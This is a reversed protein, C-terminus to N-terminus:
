ASELKLTARAAAYKAIGDQTALAPFLALIEARMNAAMSDLMAANPQFSETWAGDAMVVEHADCMFHIYSVRLTDLTQVKRGDVLDQATVLVEDQDTVNPLQAKGVLMRHKPSVVMDRRPLHAGLAGAKILIPKLGLQTALEARDLTRKGIWRIPQVGNDRTVVADGARLNEVAVEGKPTAILSGPTFCPSTDRMAQGHIPLLRVNAGNMM